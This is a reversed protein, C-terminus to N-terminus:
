NAFNILYRMARQGLISGGVGCCTCRARASNNAARSVISALLSTNAAALPFVAEGGGGALCPSLCQPTLVALMVALCDAFITRTNRSSM